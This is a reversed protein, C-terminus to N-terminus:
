TSGSVRCELREALEEVGHASHVVIADARGAVGAGVRFAGFPLKRPDVNHITM